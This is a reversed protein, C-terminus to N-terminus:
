CKTKLLCMPLPLFLIPVSLLCERSKGTDGGSRRESEAGPQPCPSGDQDAKELMRYGEEGGIQWAMDGLLTNIPLRGKKRPQSPSMSNGDLVAVHARPLESIKLRDLISCAISCGHRRHYLDARYDKNVTEEVKSLVQGTVEMSLYYEGCNKCIDDPVQKFIVTTDERNMVVTTTGKATEGNKFIVCKM